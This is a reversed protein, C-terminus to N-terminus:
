AKGNRGVSRHRANDNLRADGRVTFSEATTSVAM